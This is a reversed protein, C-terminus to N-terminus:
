ICQCHTYTLMNYCTIKNELNSAGNMICMELIKEPSRVVLKKKKCKEADNLNFEKMFVRSLRFEKM